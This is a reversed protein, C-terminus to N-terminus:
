EVDALFGVLTALYEDRRTVSTTNGTGEFLKVECGPYLAVMRERAEALTAPDNDGFVLLVRGPWGALDEPAFSRAEYDAARELIALSDKRGLSFTLLENYIAVLCATEDTREPIMSGFARRMMQRLMGMPLWRLVRNFRRLRVASELYPSRTHSLVLARVLDPHRRVLVQAVMGGYSGGVVDVKEIGDRRLLTAIGDVLADMTKVPPYAPAIVRRYAALGAITGYSIDPVALAGSLLLVPPEGEGGTLYSWDVGDLAVDNTPFDRRFAQFEELRDPPVQDYLLKIHQIDLNGVRKM